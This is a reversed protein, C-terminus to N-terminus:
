NEEKAKEATEGDFAKLAEPTHTEVLAAAQVRKYYDTYGDPDTIQNLLAQRYLEEGKQFDHLITHAVAAGGLANAYDEHNEMAEGFWKLANKGDNLHLYMRGAECRVFISYPNNEEALIKRFVEEAEGTDGNEGLARGYFFSGIKPACCTKESMEFYRVANPAYNMLQYCRATYFYVIATEGDTMKDAFEDELRQFEALATVYQELFFYEQARHFLRIKKGFGTFNDGVLEDDYKHIPRKKGLMALFCCFVVAVANYGLLMGAFTAFGPEKILFVTFIYFAVVGLFTGFVVARCFSSIFRQLLTLLKKM